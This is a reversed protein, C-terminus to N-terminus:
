GRNLIAVIREDIVALKNNYYSIKYQNGEVYQKLRGTLTNIESPSWREHDNIKKEYVEQLRLLRDYITLLPMCGLQRNCDLCCPYIRFKTNLELLVDLGYRGICNLPPVHDRSEAPGGCYYCKLKNAQSIEYLHGYIIELQRRTKVVM